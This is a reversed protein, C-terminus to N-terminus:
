RFTAKLPSKSCSVFRDVRAMWEDVNAIGTAETAVGWRYEMEKGPHYPVSALAYGITDGQPEDSPKFDLTANIPAVVASYVPTGDSRRGAYAMIHGAHNLMYGTANEQQVAIGAAASRGASVNGYSVSTRHILAGRDFTVVRREVVASDSEVAYPGYTLAVTVRLPGRDLVECSTYAGPAVPEGHRDLLYPACESQWTEAAEPDCMFEPLLAAARPSAGELVTYVATSGAGVSAPFILRGDYTIQWAVESSDPAVIRFEDGMTVTVEGAPLSVIEDLREFGLTNSVEITHTPQTCASVAASAAALAAIYFPLKM